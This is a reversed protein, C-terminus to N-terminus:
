DTGQKFLCSRIGKVEDETLGIGLLYKEVSGHEKRVTRLFDLGTEPNAENWEEPLGLKRQLAKVEATMHKETEAFDNAVLADPVGLLSELVMLVIGTRDKGMTCNIIIPYNEEKALIRFVQLLEPKGSELIKWYTGLPRARAVSCKLVLRACFNWLFPIFLSFFLVIYVWWPIMGLVARGALDVEFSVRGELIDKNSLGKVSPYKFVPDKGAKCKIHIPLYHTVASVTGQKLKAEKAAKSREQSSRLDVITKIGLDDKLITLDEPSMASFNSSRYLKNKQLVKGPVANRGIVTVFDRFNPTSALSSPVDSLRWKRVGFPSTDKPKYLIKQSTVQDNLIQNLKEIAAIIASDGPALQIARELHTKAPTLELRELSALGMRYYAKANCSANANIRLASSCPAEVYQYNKLAMHCAAINLYCQAVLEKAKPEDEPKERFTGRMHRIATDYFEMADEYKGEKFKKNGHDKNLLGYDLRSSDTFKCKEIPCIQKADEVRMGEQKDMFRHYRPSKVTINNGVQIDDFDFYPSPDEVYFFVAGEVGDKDRIKIQKSREWHEQLRQSVDGCLKFGHAPREYCFKKKLQTWTIPKYGEKDAPLDDAFSTDPPKSFDVTDGDDFTFLHPNESNEIDKIKKKLDEEIKKLEPDNDFEDDFQSPDISVPAAQAKKGEDESDSM